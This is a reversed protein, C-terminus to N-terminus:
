DAYIPRRSAGLSSRQFFSSSASAAALQGAISLLDPALAAMRAPTFRATPGAVSIVGLPPRGAHRVPAAM